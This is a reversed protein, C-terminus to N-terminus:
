DALPVAVPPLTLRLWVSELEAAVPEELEATFTDAFPLAPIASEPAPAVLTVALLVLLLPSPGLAVALDLALLPDSSESLEAVDPFALAVAVFSVVLVVFPPLAKALDAGLAFPVAVTPFVSTFDLGVAALAFRVAIFM